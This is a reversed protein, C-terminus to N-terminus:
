LKFQDSFEVLKGLDVQYLQKFVGVVISASAKVQAATWIDAAHLADALQLGTFQSIPMDEFPVGYPIAAALLEADVKEAFKEAPLTGRKRRGKELWEVVVFRDGDIVKTVPIQKTPKKDEM